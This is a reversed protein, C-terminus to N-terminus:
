FCHLSARLELSLAPPLTDEGDKWIEATLRDTSQHLLTAVNDNLPDMNKMLWENAKYDVQIFDPLPPHHPLPSLSKPNGLSGGLRESFWWNPHPHRPHPRLAHESSVLASAGGQTERRFKVRGGGPEEGKRGKGQSCVAGAEIVEGVIMVEKRIKEAVSKRM